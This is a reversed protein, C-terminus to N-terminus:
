WRRPSGLHFGNPTVLMKALGFPNAHLSRADAVAERYLFQNFLSSFARHIGKPIPFVNLCKFNPLFVIDRFFYGNMTDVNCITKTIKSMVADTM